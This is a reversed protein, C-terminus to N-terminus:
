RHGDHFRDLAPLALRREAEVPRSAALAANVAAIGIPGFLLEPREVTRKPVVVSFRQEDSFYRHIPLVQPM